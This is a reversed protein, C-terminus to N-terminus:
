NRAQCRRAMDELRRALRARIAGPADHRGDSRALLAADQAQQAPRDDGLCAAAEIRRPDTAEIGLHTCLKLRARAQARQYAVHWADWVQRSKAEQAAAAELRALRHVLSSMM